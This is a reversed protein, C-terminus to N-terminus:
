SKREETVDMVLATLILQVGLIIPLVALMVTGSSPAVSHAVKEFLIWASGFLGALFLLMGTFLFLAIPHFGYLVYKYYIRQWFGKFLSKLVRMTTSFLKITSKEDGYVAPIPFDGVKANIIALGILITNEFEYREGILHWPMRVIVDKTYVVYGNQTDFISYYGTAFKTLITVVINGFHRYKPMSKLADFHMFRNAKIFDLDRKEMNDLMPALQNPDMQADGAMVVVRDSGLEAAKKLGNTLSYGIGRNVKNDILSIRKDKHQFKKIISLTNDISCDNIVVIHDVFDPMTSLTKEILKEENYAPVAVGINLKKYM